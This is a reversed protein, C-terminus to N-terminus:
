SEPNFRLTWQANKEREAVILYGLSELVGSVAAHAEQDLVEVFVEPRYRRLTSLAGALASVESGEVDLKIVDVTTLSLTSVIQDIPEVRVESIKSWRKLDRKTEASALQSGHGRKWPSVAGFLRPAILDAKTSRDGVAVQLVDCNEVANLELNLRLQSASFPNPEIAVVRQAGRKSAIISFLGAYAGADIVVADKCLESFARLTEVEYKLDGGRRFALFHDDRRSTIMKFTM